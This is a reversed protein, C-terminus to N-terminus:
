HYLFTLVILMSIEFLFQERHETISIETKKTAIDNLEFICNSPIELKGYEM